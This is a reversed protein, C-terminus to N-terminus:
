SVKGAASTGNKPADEEYYRGYYKSNYQYYYSSGSHLDFANVVIGAVRANVHSLLDRVRRLAVKTTQGSRLVILVSDAEVSLLVADTVSLAPPTDIVIHDFEERWRALYDKMLTSGLLEAPQPPPPGATLVFLNPIETSVIADEPRDGGTMLRSLGSTNRLGLAKHIGPRRLDADVLLVRGGRQALVIASNISTTTKGEQPLASTVLIVKPPSGLSSLLISTRLARYSESLESRPRAFTVLELSDASESSRSSLALLPHGNKRNKAILKTSLPIIGLSPLASIIQAEEPTRVTNDLGELVFALGVGGFLGLALGLVINRPINPASPLTPVRALDVIRINSSRLGASVGAEKLKQLLGEYLQRNSEADHKLLNYEIASENLHNAEQKQVDLAAGLLKERQLASLYENQVRSAIREDEAQISAEVQKLQNGLQMVKPYSSGFQTTAEAYKIRLDSEQTRLEKILSSPEAKAFIEPNGGSALKYASEKQMRDGEAATLEKNLEDLKSTVINQKEDIGLIDHQKQYRVLKEQSTEVKMELDSLQGSLWDSTQMTSEFKTKFNQEIYTNILMNVIQASLRPDPHSYHIEVIRTRPVVRITLDRRFRDLLSSEFRADVQLSNLPPETRPKAAAGALVPDNNLKLNKIVQFAIADSQLIRVQTELTINYDDYDAGITGQDSDKFGLNLSNERNVEIRGTAEYVPTMHLTYVTALTAIILWTSIVVWMRKKLIRGYERLLFGEALLPAYSRAPDAPYQIETPLQEVAPIDRGRRMMGSDM